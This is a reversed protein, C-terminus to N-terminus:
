YGAGKTKCHLGNIFDLSYQTNYDLMDPAKYAFSQDDKNIMLSWGSVYDRIFLDGEYREKPNYFNDSYKQTACDFLAKAKITECGNVPTLQIEVNSLTDTSFPYDQVKFDDRRFTIRGVSRTQLKKVAQPNYPLSFGGDNLSATYSSADSAVNVQVNYLPNGTCSNRIKGIVTKPSDLLLVQLTYSYDTSPKPLSRSILSNQNTLKLKYYGDAPLSGQVLISEGLHTVLAALRQDAADFLEVLPDIQAGVVVELKYTVGKQGYFTYWDTRNSELPRESGPINVLLSLANTSLKPADDIVIRQTAVISKGQKDTATLTIVFTGPDNFTMSTLKGSAQQVEVTKAIINAKLTTAVEPEARWLYNVSNDASDLVGTADLTVTLPVVGKSFSISFSPTKTPTPTSVPTSTPTPTVIPPLLVTPKDVPTPTIVAIPNMSIQQSSTATKGANNTVTLTVTIMGLTSFTMSAQKGNATQGDSSSWAYSVITGGSDSSGSADLNVVLPSSGKTSNAVFSSVPISNENRLNQPPQLTQNATVIIQKNTLATKGFNNTVTLTVTVNGLASFTMNAQKGSAIQGDSSSWAYSVITGGSDSSGSADLSVTLPTNGQSPNATYSAVPAGCNQTQWAPDKQNLYTILVPDSALLCNNNELQLYQINVLQTLESPITGSFQNGQLSLTKLKTLQGLEAPISGSLQNGSLDLSVLETFRALISGILPNKLSKYSLRLETVHDNYCVVEPYNCVNQDPQYWKYAGPYSSGGTSYYLGTLAEQESAPIAASVQSINALMVLAIFLKFFIRM